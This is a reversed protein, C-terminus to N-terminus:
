TYQAIPVSWEVRHVRYKQVLHAERLSKGYEGVRPTTNLQLLLMMIKHECAVANCTYAQPQTRISGVRRVGQPGLTIFLKMFRKASRCISSQMSSQKMIWSWSLM